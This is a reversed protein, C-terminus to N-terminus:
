PTSTEHAHYKPATAIKGNTAARASYPDTTPATTAHSRPLPTRDGNSVAATHTTPSAM